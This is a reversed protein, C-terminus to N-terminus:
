IFGRKEGEGQYFSATKKKKKKGRIRAARKNQVSPGKKRGKEPANRPSAGEKKPFFSIWAEGELDKWRRPFASVWGKSERNSERKRRRLKKHHHSERELLLGARRKKGKAPINKKKKEGVGREEV